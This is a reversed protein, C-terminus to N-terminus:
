LKTFFLDQLINLENLFIKIYKNFRQKVTLKEGYPFKYQRWSTMRLYKKYLGAYPHLCDRYWPKIPAAFHIIGPHRKAEPLEDLYNDFIKPKRMFYFTTMNWRIPLFTLKDKFYLAIVDQDNIIRDSVIKVFEFIPSEFELKRWAKLDCVMVGSNIYKDNQNLDLRKKIAICDPIDEAAAIVSGKFDVNYLSDIDDNVVIDGDLFLCRECEFPLMLPIFLKYYMMTSWKGTPLDSLNVNLSKNLDLDPNRVFLISNYSSCLRRLREYTETEIGNTLLYVDFRKGKNTEFLSCLM